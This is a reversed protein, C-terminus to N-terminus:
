GHHQSGQVKKREGKSGRGISESGDPSNEVLIRYKDPGRRLSMAPQKSKLPKAKTIKAPSKRRANKKM